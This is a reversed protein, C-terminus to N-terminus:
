PTVEQHTTLLGATAAAQRLSIDWTSFSVQLGLRDKLILGSALHVADYGRPAHREALDGALCVLSESIGIKLVRERWDNNLDHIANAYDQPNAFYNERRRRALAARVETYAIRATFTCEAGGFHRRVEESEWGAQQGPESGPPEIVYLKVLSSADLYLIM